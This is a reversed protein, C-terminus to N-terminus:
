DTRGWSMDDNITVWINSDHGERILQKRVHVRDSTQFFVTDLLKGNLYVDFAIM